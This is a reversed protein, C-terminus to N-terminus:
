LTDDTLSQQKTLGDRWGRMYESHMQEKEMQKAQEIKLDIYPTYVNETIYNLEKELWELSTQKM